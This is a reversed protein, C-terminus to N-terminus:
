SLLWIIQRCQKDINLKGLFANFEGELIPNKSLIEVMLIISIDM